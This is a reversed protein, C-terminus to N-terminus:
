VLASILAYVIFGANMVLLCFVALSGLDKANKAALSFEPSVRDVVEEIATNLAEIAFLLLMLGAFIMCHALPASIAILVAEGIILATIEHRFAAEKILRLFGQGSYRAAAFLHAIGTKKEFLPKAESRDTPTTM